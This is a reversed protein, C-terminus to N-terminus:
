FPCVEKMANLTQERSLQGNRAKIIVASLQALEGTWDGQVPAKQTPAPAPKQAPAPASDKLSLEAETLARSWTKQKFGYHFGDAKARTRYEANTQFVNGILYVWQGRIEVICGPYEHVFKAILKKVVEPSLQAWEKAPKEPKPQPTQAKAVPTRAPAPAFKPMQTCNHTFYYGKSCAIFGADKLMKAVDSPVEGRVWASISNVDIGPVNKGTSIPLAPFLRVMQNKISAVVPNVNKSM